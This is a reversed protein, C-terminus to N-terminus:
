KRSGPWVQYNAAGVNKNVSSTAMAWPLFALALLLACQRLMWMLLRGLALPRSWGLRSSCGPCAASEEALAGTGGHRHSDGVTDPSGPRGPCHGCRGRLSGAPCIGRKAHAREAGAPIGCELHPNVPSYRSPHALCQRDKALVGDPPCTTSRGSSIKAYGLASLRKGKAMDTV